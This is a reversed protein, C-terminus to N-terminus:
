VDDAGDDDGASSFSNSRQPTLVDKNGNDGSSSDSDFFKPMYFPKPPDFKPLDIPPPQSRTRRSEVEFTPVQPLAPESIRPKSEAVQPKGGYVSDQQSM